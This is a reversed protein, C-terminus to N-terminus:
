PLSATLIMDGSPADSGAAPEIFVGISEFSQGDLSRLDIVHYAVGQWSSFSGADRAQQGNFLWIQFVQDPELTPMNHCVIAATGTSDSWYFTAMAQAQAPIAALRLSQVDPTTRVAEMQPLRDTVQSAATLEQRLEDKDDELDGMQVFLVASLATASVALAALGGVALAPLRGLGRLSLGPLAPRREKRAAAMVRKRLSGSAAHLPAGLALAAAARQTDTLEEWCRLCEAVHQELRRAEEKEAAGLAYADLIEKVEECDM